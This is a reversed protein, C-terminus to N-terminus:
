GATRSRAPRRRWAVRGRTRGAARHLHGAQPPGQPAEVPAAEVVPEPAPAEPPAFSAPESAAEPAAEVISELIPEPEVLPEPTAEILSEAAAEIVAEPEPLAEAVTEAATEAVAEAAAEAEAILEKLPEEVAEAIALVPELAMLAVATEEAMPEPAADQLRRGWLAELNTAQAWRTAWWFAVGGAAAGAFFGWLPSVAGVMLQTSLPTASIERIESESM